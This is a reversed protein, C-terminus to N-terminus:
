KLLKKLEEYNTFIPDKIVENEIHLQRSIGGWTSLNVLEGDKWMSWILECLGFETSVNFGFEINKENEKIQFFKESKFFKANYDIEKFM